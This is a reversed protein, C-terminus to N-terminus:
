RLAPSLRPLVVILRILRTSRISSNAESTTNVSTMNVPQSAEIYAGGSVVPIEPSGASEVLAEAEPTAVLVGPDVVDEDVVLVVSGAVVDEEVVLVVEVDVVVVVATTM